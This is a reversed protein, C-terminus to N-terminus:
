NRTCWDLFGDFIAIVSDCTVTRAQAERPAQMLKHYRSFAEERDGGLRIQKNGLQLYWGRGKRFWPKSFHAM